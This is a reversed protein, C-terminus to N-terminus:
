QSANSDMPVFLSLYPGMLVWLFEYPSILVRLSGVFDMLFFLSGYPGM